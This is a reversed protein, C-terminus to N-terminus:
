KAARAAKQKKTPLPLREQRGRVKFRDRPPCTASWPAAPIVRIETGPPIVSQAKIQM